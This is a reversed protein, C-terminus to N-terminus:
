RPLLQKGLWQKGERGLRKLAQDLESQFLCTPGFYRVEGSPSTGIQIRAQPTFLGTSPPAINDIVIRIMAEKKRECGPDTCRTDKSLVKRPVPLFTRGQSFRDGFHIVFRWSAALTGGHFEHNGQFAVFVADPDGFTRGDGTADALAFGLVLSRRVDVFGNEATQFDAGSLAHREGQFGTEDLNGDCSCSGTMALRGDMLPRCARSANESFHSDSLVAGM